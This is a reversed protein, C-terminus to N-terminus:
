KSTYIVEPPPYDGSIQKLKGHDFILILKKQQIPRDIQEQFTYVYNWQDEAFPDVIDPSGLLYEVQQKSMGPRIDKILAQPIVKGQEVPATYPTFISCSSLLTTNLGLLWLLISKKNMM